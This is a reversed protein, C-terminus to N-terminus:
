RATERKGATTRCLKLGPMVTNRGAAKAKYLMADAERLLGAEDLDGHIASVGFSATVSLNRGDPLGVALKEIKARLREALEM